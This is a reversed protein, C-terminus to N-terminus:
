PVYLLRTIYAGEVNGRRVPAMGTTKREEGPAAKALAELIVRRPGRAAERWPKKTDAVCRLLFPFRLEDGGTHRSYLVYPDAGEESIRLAAGESCSVIELGALAGPLDLTVREGLAIHRTRIDFISNKFRRNACDPDGVLDLIDAKAFHWPHLPGPLAGGPRRPAAAAEAGILGGVLATVDPRRLHGGDIYLPPFDARNKLLVNRLLRDIDVLTVNHSTAYHDALNEMGNATAFMHPKMDRRTFQPVIVHVDERAALLVRLLGEAAGRWTDIKDPRAFKVDNVGYEVVVHNYDALDPTMKACMLGHVISNGGVALNTVRGPPGYRHELYAVMSRVYGRRIVTNSGGLFLINWPRPDIPGRPRRSAVKVTPGAAPASEAPAQELRPTTPTKEHLDQALGAPRQAVPSKKKRGPKKKSQKAKAGMLARLRNLAPRLMARLSAAITM